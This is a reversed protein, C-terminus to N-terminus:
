VIMMGGAERTAPDGIDLTDTRPGSRETVSAPTPLSMNDGGAACTVIGREAGLEYPNVRDDLTM